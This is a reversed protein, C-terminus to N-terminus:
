LSLMFNAAHFETRIGILLLENPVSLELGIFLHVCCIKNDFVLKM